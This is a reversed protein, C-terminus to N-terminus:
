AILYDRDRKALELRGLDNMREAEEIDDDVEALRRRYADRAEDDLVPLGVGVDSTGM